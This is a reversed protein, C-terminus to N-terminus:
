TAAMAMSWGGLSCQRIWVSVPTLPLDLCGAECTYFFFLQGPHARSGNFILGM